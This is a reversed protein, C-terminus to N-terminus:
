RRDVSQSGKKSTVRSFAVYLQGHIFVLNKLYVVVNSLTQGQSKNITMAYRVRVPYQKRELVFTIKPTKLTLCIHPILVRKGIHKGTMIEAEIIPHGLTTVILRTGNCLLRYM